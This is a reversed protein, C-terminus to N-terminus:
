TLLNRIIVVPYVMSKAIGNMANILQFHSYYKINDLTIEAEKIKGSRLLNQRQVGNLLCTEPTYWRKNKLFILNSFSTDTVANNKIIIIESGGSETKLKEFIKRNEYKFHYELDNSKVIVFDKIESFVYPIMQVEFNQETDYVMRMKFLGNEEPQFREFIRLLDLPNEKGFHKFTENVRKQHLELLFPKRNEVKISEIFRSM